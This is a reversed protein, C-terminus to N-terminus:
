VLPADHQSAAPVSATASASLATRGDTAQPRTAVFCCIRARAQTHWPGQESPAQAGFLSQHRRLGAVPHLQHM